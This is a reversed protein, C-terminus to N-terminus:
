LGFLMLAIVLVVGIVIGTAYTSVVGTQVYRFVFSTARTLFGVMNVIGDIVFKDFPAFFGTTSRILPNVIVKDYVEDVYYKHEALRYLGGFRAKLKEDFALGEKSYWRWALGVGAVAILGGLILLTWETAVSVHSEVAAEAVPGGYSSGLFHHILNWEGHKIVAPLGVFGAGAALAALVWLPLTMSWPSEHPTVTDAHPWRPEGEFTLVYARTMYVATLFATVIGVVWAFIAATNQDMISFAQFLIEDKSFYGSLLPIGAIALTSILFTMRTAPMFRKLGGMTRMDQPDLTHNHGEHDSGHVLEHEVGHMGHIVSGSGLFLCGKFFAHTMVHFIAVWFAGVGIALFMYGLQSVTSYALVKKIDNQTIAITAAVIATLAGVIAIVVMIGEAALVIPSLRALLYLGSTVMTAAHILASVPTPGAMADPLWTYLPIQASKGTAGLFLLMVITNVVGTDLGPGESLLVDFSLSGLERYLMFMALLFCFDGIRNMIFAKNAARSNERNTYWFGILLYSCLGVGEWGLFLVVLNNGLVLNLMAFIFLNLYAFFRWFGPDGQMYGISYLHILGGVGTIILTMVLSLQDVRYDFEVTLDGASMWTFLHVISAQGDFGIFLMVACIFPIVVMATGISGILTERSRIAPIFLGGLGLLVAGALPLLIILQVLIQTQM